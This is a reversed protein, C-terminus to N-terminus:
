FKIIVGAKLLEFMSDDVGHASQEEYANNPYIRNYEAEMIINPPTRTTIHHRCMYDHQCLLRVMYDTPSWKIVPYIMDKHDLFQLAANLQNCISFANLATCAWFGSQSILSNDSPYAQSTNNAYVYDQYSPDLGLSYNFDQEYGSITSNSNPYSYNTPLQNTYYSNGHPYSHNGIYNQPSNLRNPENCYTPLPHWLNIMDSKFPTFGPDGYIHIGEAPIYNTYGFTRSCVLYELLRMAQNYNPVRYVEAYTNGNYHLIDNLKSRENAYIYGTTTIGIFYNKETTTM